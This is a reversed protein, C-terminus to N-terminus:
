FVFAEDGENEKPKRMMSLVSDRNKYYWKLLSAKRRDAHKRNYERYYKNDKVVKM